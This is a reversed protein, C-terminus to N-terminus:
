QVSRSGEAAAPQQPNLQVPPPSQTPGRPPAAAARAPTPPKRPPTPTNATAGGSPAGDPEPIMINVAPISNASPFDYHSLAGIPRGTQPAAANAAPMSPAVGASAAVPPSISGISGTIASGGVAGISSEASPPIRADRMSWSAAYRAVYGDFTRDKLNGRVRSADNLLGLTDCQTPTCSDRLSLVQAVIGFRDSELAQRLVAVTNAYKPDSDAFALSQVLLDLRASVYSVATAAAEPTAFLAKECASEVTDGAIADLCALPSGPAIARLALESIRADLARRESERDSTAMRDLFVCVVLVIGAVVLAASTSLRVIDGATAKAFVFVGVAVFSAAMLVAAWVPLGFTETALELMALGEENHGGQPASLVSQLFELPYRHL